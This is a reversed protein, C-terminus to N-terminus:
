KAPKPVLALSEVKDTRVIILRGTKAEYVVFFDGLRGLYSVPQHPGVPLQSASASLDVFLTGEGRKAKSAGELGADIAYIPILVILAGVLIALGITKNYYDIKENAFAAFLTILLFTILIVTFQYPSLSSGYSWTAVLSWAV